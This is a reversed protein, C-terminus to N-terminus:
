SLIASPIISEVKLGRDICSAAVTLNQVENEKKRIASLPTAISFPTVLQIKNLHRMIFLDINTEIGALIEQIGEKEPLFEGYRSQRIIDLASGLGDALVLARIESESLNLFDHTIARYILHSPYDLFKARLVTSINFRDILLGLSSAAIQFDKGKLQGISTLLNDYYERDLSFDFLVTSGTQEYRPMGEALASEYSTGKFVDLLSKVDLTRAAKVFLDRRRFTDEISLYVRELIKEYPLKASKARIITKLNEIEFILFYEKLFNQIENPSFLMIRSSSRMLEERFAHQIEKVTPRDIGRLRYEYQTKSLRETFETLDRSEFLNKIRDSTLLYSREVAARVM